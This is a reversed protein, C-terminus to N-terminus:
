SQCVMKTRQMLLMRVLHCLLEKELLVGWYVMQDVYQWNSFVNADFSNTGRPVNGSTTDNMISLAAVKMEKNQTENLQDLTDKDIREALPVTSVNYKADLDSEFDWELLEDPFWYSSEPINEMPETAPHEETETLEVSEGDILFEDSDKAGDETACATLTLATALTLMKTMRKAFRNM